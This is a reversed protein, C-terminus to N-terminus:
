SIYIKDMIIHFTNINCGQIDHSIPEVCQPKVDVIHAFRLYYYYM